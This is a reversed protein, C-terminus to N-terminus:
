RDLKSDITIRKQGIASCTGPAQGNSFPLKLWHSPLQNATVILLSHSHLTAPIRLPVLALQRVLGEELRLCPVVVHPYKGGLYALELAEPEV